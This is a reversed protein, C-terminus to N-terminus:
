GRDSRRATLKKSLEYAVSLDELLPRTTDDPQGDLAAAVQTYTLRARSKMVADYVEAHLPKGGADLAIDCVMCLRDVNPNLSCIGNSLNEPLMPVARGPFYVSTARRLAERDLPSGPKVYHAVDAIAVVLRYGAGSPSVHVADDFDRADEGDITVLPLKRLDRRGELDEHRVVDPVGNAEKLTPEDFEDSFGNAYLASLM